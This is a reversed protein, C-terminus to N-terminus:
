AKTHEDGAALRWIRLQQLAKIAIATAQPQGELDGIVQEVDLPM